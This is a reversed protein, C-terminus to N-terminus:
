DRLMSNIIVGVAGENVLPNRGIAREDGDSVGDNDDDADCADGEGDRDTDTQLPNAVAPCNDDIVNIGDGDSDVWVVTLESTDM